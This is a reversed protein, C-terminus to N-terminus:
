EPNEVEIDKGWMEFRKCMILDFVKKLVGISVDTMEWGVICRVLTESSKFRM